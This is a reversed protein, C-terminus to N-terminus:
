LSGGYSNFRALAQYAAGQMAPKALGPLGMKDLPSGSPTIGFIKSYLQDAGDPVAMPSKYIDGMSQNFFGMTGSMAPSTTGTRQLWSETGQAFAEEAPVDWNGGFIDGAEQMQEPQLMRRVAHSMEHPATSADPSIPSIRMNDGEFAIQGKPNMPNQYLPQGKTLLEDKMQPSLRFLTRGKQSTNATFQTSLWDLAEQESRFTGVSNLKLPLSYAKAEWADTLEQGTGEANPQFRTTKNIQGNFDPVTESKLSYSGPKRSPIKRFDPMSEMKEVTGGAKKVLKSIINTMKDNYFKGLADQPGGVARAAAEGPVLTIADYGKEAADRLIVKAMLDPWSKKFPADPKAMKLEGRADLLQQRLEDRRVGFAMQGSIDGAAKAKVVADNLDFYESELDLIKERLLVTNQYGDKAGQQHLDSQIEQIRMAKDGNPLTVEDVRAHAQVDPFGFETFHNGPFEHMPNRLLLERYTGPKGGPVQWEQYGTEPTGELSDMQEYLNDKRMSLEDSQALIQQALEENGASRAAGFERDLRRAEDDFADMQKQLPYRWNTLETVTNQAWAKDAALAFIDDKSVKDTTAFLEDFDRSMDALEEQKVGYGTLTKLLQERGVKNPVKGADVAEMIKSYFPEARYGPDVPSQYLVDTAGAPNSPPQSFKALQRDYEFKAASMPNDYINAVNQIQEVYHRSDHSATKDLLAPLRERLAKFVSDQRSRPGEHLLEPMFNEFDNDVKEGVDTAIQKMTDLFGPFHAASYLPDVLLSDVDAVDSAFQKMTSMLPGDEAFPNGGEFASALNQFVMQDDPQSMDLGRLLKQLAQNKSNVEELWQGRSVGVIPKSYFEAVRDGYTPDIAAIERDKKFLEDYFPKQDEWASNDPFNSSNRFEDRQKRLVAAQDMRDAITPQPSQLLTNTRMPNQVDGVDIRGHVQEAPLKNHVAFSDLLNMTHAGSEGFGAGMQQALRLREPHMMVSDISKNFKRAAKRGKLARFVPAMSVFNLPDAAMEFGFGALDKVGEMPNDFWGSMGTEENAGLLPQLVDRGSARNDSSFPTAWQDFPNNGSLLDRLSSGPLDLVNGAYGLIDLLSPM